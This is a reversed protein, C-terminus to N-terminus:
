KNELAELRALMSAMMSSMSSLTTELSAVKAKEAQLQRDVEQLAATAVTWIADKNLTHFDHVEQGYVFIQNGPVVQDGVVQGGWATLDTDVRLTHDDIVELINVFEEKGERTTIKLKPFLGGSADRSLKTTNLTILDGSFTALEYLNPVIETMLGSAYDLVAKVEQAIFGYVPTSGKRIVDTYTYIKPKLLRLDRLARDDDIDVINTKIRRDSMVVYADSTLFNGVGYVSINNVVGTSGTLTTSYVTWYKYPTAADGM